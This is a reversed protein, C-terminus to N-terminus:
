PGAPAVVSHSTTGSSASFLASGQFSATLTRDGAGTLVIPCQGAAVEASCGESDSATVQVTGSPTGGPSTVQFVVVVEQGPISPDPDDSTIGTTTQAPRVDITSSTV